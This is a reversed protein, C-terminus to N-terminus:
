FPSEEKENIEIGDKGTVFLRNTGATRCIYVQKGNSLHEVECLVEVKAGKEPVYCDEFNAVFEPMYWYFMEKFSSYACGQKILTGVAIPTHERRGLYKIGNIGIVNVKDYQRVVFRRIGSARDVEYLILAWCGDSLSELGQTKKHYIIPMPLSLADKYGSYCKGNSVVRVLDGAKM